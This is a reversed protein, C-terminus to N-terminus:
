VRSGIRRPVELGPRIPYYLRGSISWAPLDNEVTEIPINGVNYPLVVLRGTAVATQELGGM